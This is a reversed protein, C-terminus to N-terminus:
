VKGMDGFIVVGQASNQGPYPSAKFQYTQSWIYQGNLLRHGLKYTYKSNPWLEKMFSTHIFGPDRWGVTRAPAGCMSNRDFTLTVALSRRREGGQPGWEIFPEAEELGYGSTWTVTMENWEKGQALRPYLPANPNAFSIANSLAVSKPKLLGGSFVAFSFVSRQNILQLTLLGKGTSKYRPNSFNANQLKTPATCLLPPTATVNEPPCTSASFNSPSFVGIWDEISPNPISYELTVLEKQQGNLGLVSPSAKISAKPDIAIVAKHIAITSLAQVRHSTVGKFTLLTSLIVLLHLM